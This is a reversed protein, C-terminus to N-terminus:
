EGPLVYGHKQKCVSGCRQGVVDLVATWAAVAVM